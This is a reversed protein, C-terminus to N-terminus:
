EEIGVTVDKHRLIVKPSYVELLFGKYTVSWPEEREDYGINLSFASSSQAGVESKSM